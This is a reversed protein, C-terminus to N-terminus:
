PIEFYSPNMQSRVMTSYRRPHGWARPACGVDRGGSRLAAGQGGQRAGGLARRPAARRGGGPLPRRPRDPVGGHLARRQAALGGRARAAGARLGDGRARRRGGRPLAAGGRVGDRGPTVEADAQLLRIEDFGEATAVSAYAGLFRALTPAEISCSTDVVAALVPGGADRPPRADRGRLAVRRGPRRAREDSRSPRLFSRDRRAFMAISRQLVASWDPPPELTARVLEGMSARTEGFTKGGSAAEEELAAALRMKWQLERARTELPSPEEEEGDGDGEGDDDDDRDGDPKKVSELAKVDELDQPRGSAKKMAILDNRSLVRVKGSSTMITKTSANKLDYNIIIDVQNIPNEPNYFNWAILNRNQIYEDRFYFLSNSDIPLLSVLGMKKFAKEVNELNKLTWNIAIDIDVTGRLAGHLAVAYGGVVAYPIKAKDLAICVDHIFM